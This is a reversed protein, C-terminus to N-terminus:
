MGPWTRSMPHRVRYLTQPTAPVKKEVDAHGYGRTWVLRDGLVVGISVGPQGRQAVTTTVWADLLRLADGFGAPDQANVIRPAGVRDVTAGDQTPRADLVWARRILGDRVLYMWTAQSREAPTGTFHEQDIVFQGEVIRPQVTIRFDPPLSQLQRSYHEQIRDRTQAIVQGGPFRAFVADPAVLAAMASADLANAADVFRQVVVQPLTDPSPSTDRQARAGSVITLVVAAVSLVIQM